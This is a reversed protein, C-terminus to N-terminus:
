VVHPSSPSIFPNNERFPCPASLAISGDGVSRVVVSWYVYYLQRDDGWCWKLNAKVEIKERSSTSVRCGSANIEQDTQSVSMM